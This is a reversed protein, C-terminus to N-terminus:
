NNYLVTCLDFGRKKGRMDLGKRWVVDRRVFRIVLLSDLAIM